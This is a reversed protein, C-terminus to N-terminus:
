WGALKMYFTLLKIFALDDLDDRRLQKSLSELVQQRTITDAM